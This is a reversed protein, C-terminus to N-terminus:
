IRDNFGELDETSIEAVPKIDVVQVKSGDSGYPHRSIYNLLKRKSNWIKASSEYSYSTSASCYRREGDPLQKFLRYGIM